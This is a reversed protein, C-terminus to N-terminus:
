AECHGRGGDFGGPTLFRKHRPSPAGTDAPDRRPLLWKAAGRIADTCDTLRIRQEHSITADHSYLIRNAKDVADLIADLTDELVAPPCRFTLAGALARRRQAATQRRAHVRGRTPQTDAATHREASDLFRRRCTSFRATSMDEQTGDQFLVSRIQGRRGDDWTATDHGRLTGRPGDRRMVYTPADTPEHRRLRFVWPTRDSDSIKRVDAACIAGNANLHIDTAIPHSTHVVRVYPQYWPRSTATFVDQGDRDMYAPLWRQKTPLAYPNYRSLYHIELQGDADPVRTVRGLLRSEDNGRVDTIDVAVMDGVSVPTDPPRSVAASPAKPTRDLAAAPESYDAILHEVYVRLERGGADQVVYEPHRSANTAIYPHWLPTLKHSEGEAVIRRRVFVRDGVAYRVDPLWRQGEVQRERREDGLESASAFAASLRLRLAAAFEDEDIAEM